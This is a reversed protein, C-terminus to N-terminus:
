SKKTVSNDKELKKLLLSISEELNKFTEIYISLNGGFPDLIDKEIGVYENLTYVNNSLDTYHQVIYLKHSLTMTLILDYKQLLEETLFVAKRKSIDQGIKEMIVISSNKTTFDEDIVSIGASYASHDLNNNLKNFIAEAMPSRCTNGTCVFLIKM